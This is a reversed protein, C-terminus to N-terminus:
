ELRSRLKVVTIRPKRKDTLMLGDITQFAVPFLCNVAFWELLEPAERETVTRAAVFIGMLVLETLVATLAM